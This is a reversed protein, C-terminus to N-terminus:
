ITYKLFLGLNIIANFPSMKPKPINIIIELRKLDIIRDM